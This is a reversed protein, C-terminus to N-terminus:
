LFLFNKHDESIKIKVTPNPTLDPKVTDPNAGIPITHALPKESKDLM